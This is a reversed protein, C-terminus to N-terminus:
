GGVFGNEIAWAAAAARNSVQLKSLIASVYDRTTTEAIFLEAAIEKNKLGKALLPVIERERQNLDNWASRRSEEAVENLLGDQFREGKRLAELCAKLTGRGVSAAAVLGESAAALSERQRGYGELSNVLLIAKTEPKQQRVRHLLRLGADKSLTDSLLLFVPREASMVLDEVEREDCGAGLIGHKGVQKDVLCFLFAEYRSSTGFVVDFGQVLEVVPTTEWQIAEDVPIFPAM